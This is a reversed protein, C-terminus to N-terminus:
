RYHNAAPVLVAYEGEKLGELEIMYSSEGYKKGKFHQCNKIITSFIRSTKTESEINESTQNIYQSTSGTSSIQTSSYGKSLDLRRKNKSAKLKYVFVTALPEFSNDAVKVIFTASEDKNLRISSRGSEIELYTMGNSYNEGAIEKDLNIISGDTKLLVTEGLFDPEFNQAWVILSTLSLFLAIIVKRM